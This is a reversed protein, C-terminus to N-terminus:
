EGPYINDLNEDLLRNDQTVVGSDDVPIHLGDPGTSYLVYGFNEWRDTDKYEYVYPNGWPDIFVLGEPQTTNDAPLEKSPDDASSVLFQATDIFGKPGADPVRDLDEMTTTGGTREFEKWGLLAQLLVQEPVESGRTWPFDGLRLKFQEISQALVALESKARARNQAGQIGQSVGFTISALIAIVAIVLLIEILTFGCARHRRDSSTPHPAPYM